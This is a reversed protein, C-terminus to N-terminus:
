RRLSTFKLGDNSWHYQTFQTQKAEDQDFRCGYYFYGAWLLAHGSTPATSFTVAGNAITNAGAVAGNDFILPQYVGYVPESWSNIKRNLQFVTTVGDGTGFQTGLGYTAYTAPDTLVAGTSPDTLVAGTSPDTLAATIVACDSPDVFLWPLFQGNMTNFFEWLTAQEPYTLKQRIFEYDVKFQWLPYPWQATRRERGSAARKVKTSWMPSKDFTVSQGPLDPFVNLSDVGSWIGTPLSILFSPPVYPTIAM